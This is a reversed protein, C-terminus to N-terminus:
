VSYCYTSSCYTICGQDDCLRITTCGFLSGTGPMVPRICYESEGADICLFNGCSSPLAFSMSSVLILIVFLFTARRVM